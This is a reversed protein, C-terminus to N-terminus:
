NSRNADYDALAKEGAGTLKVRRTNLEADAPDTECLGVTKMVKVKGTVRTRRGPYEQRTIDSPQDADDAWFETVQGAAIARLLEARDGTITLPPM